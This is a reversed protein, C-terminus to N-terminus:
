SPTVSVTDRKVGQRLLDNYILEIGRETKAVQTISVTQVLNNRNMLFGNWSDGEGGTRHFHHLAELSFDQRNKLWEEFWGQRMERIEKPYLTASSWLYRGAEADLQ